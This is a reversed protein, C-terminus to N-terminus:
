ILFTTILYDFALILVSSIVVATTTARGVGEAGGSTNFGQFSGVQTLVLGFVASKFLGGLIDSMTLFNEVKSVYLGPDLGMLNVAVLYGGFIGIFNSLITLVPLMVVGAFIRPSILYQYSNVAMAELAIIQDTVRMTGLEASMASGARANVMLASLVPGLERALAVSVVAGVMSEANFKKMVDFIQLTLVMGTFTGTLLVVSLSGNGIFRLQRFFLRPRYPPVFIYFFSLALVKGISGIWVVVTELYRKVFILEDQFFSM